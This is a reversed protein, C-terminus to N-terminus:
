KNNINKVKKKLKKGTKMNDIKSEEIINDSIDDRISNIDFIKIDQTNNIDDVELSTESEDFILPSAEKFEIEQHNDSENEGSNSEVINENSEVQEVQKAKRHKYCTQYEPYKSIKSGCIKGQRPGKSLIIKCVNEDKSDDDIQIHKSCRNSENRSIRDCTKGENIGKLFVYDCRPKNQQQLHIKCLDSDPQNKKSCEQGANKGRTLIVKCM